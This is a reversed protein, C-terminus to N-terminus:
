GPLSSEPVTVPITDVNESEYITNEYPIAIAANM